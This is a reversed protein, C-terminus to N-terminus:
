FAFTLKLETVEEDTGAVGLANDKENNVLGVTMGGSTYSASFGSNEEDSSQADFETDSQGYSISLNENVAFSIGYGTREIDSNTAEADVDSQQAGISIPGATYKIFYTSLDDENTASSQNTGIGAGISLGEVLGDMAVVASEEAGNPNFGLSTSLTFGQASVTYGLYSGSSEDAQNNIIGAAPTGHTSSGTDDWVQEGANPVVDQYAALGSAYAFYDFTVKGMDNMDIAVLSSEVAVQEDYTHYVSVGFGNDLEGSGSFTVSQNQFFTDDAQAKSTGSKNSEWEMNAKGSVSMEGAQAFTTAALAGALATLGIKKLNTM